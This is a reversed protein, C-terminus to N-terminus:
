TTRRLLRVVAAEWTREGGSATRRHVYRERALETVEGLEGSRQVCRRTTRTTRIPTPSRARRRDAARGGGCPGRAGRPRQRARRRADAREPAASPDRGGGAPRLASVDGTLVLEYLGPRDRLTARRAEPETDIAVVPRVGAAALAEGSVGNGAGLDLVRVDGTAADAVMRAVVDPTACGLMRQVVEEYLGPVAYVRGYDHMTLREVRGDDFTVEFAEEDPGGTEQEPFRVSLM